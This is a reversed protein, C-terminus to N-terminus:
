FDPAVDKIHFNYNRLVPYMSQHQQPLLISPYILMEAEGVVAKLVMDNEM